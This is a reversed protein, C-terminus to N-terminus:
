RAMTRLRKLRGQVTSDLTVKPSVVRVGGILEPALHERLVVTANDYRRSVLSQIEARLESTLPSATSVDAIVMGRDALEREIDQTLLELQGLLRHELLYAALQQIVAERHAGSVLEEAVYAAVKRRSVGAFAM